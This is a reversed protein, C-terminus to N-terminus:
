AACGERAALAETIGARTIQYKGGDRIAEHRGNQRIFRYLPAQERILARRKLALFTPKRLKPTGGTIPNGRPRSFTGDLGLDPLMREMMIRGSEDCWSANWCPYGEDPANICVGPYALLWELVARQSLSLNSMGWGRGSGGDARGDPGSPTVAKMVMEADTM